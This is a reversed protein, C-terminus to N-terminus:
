TIMNSAESKHVFAPLIHPQIHEDPEPLYLPTTGVTAAFQVVSDKALKYIDKYYLGQEMGEYLANRLLYEASTLFSLQM